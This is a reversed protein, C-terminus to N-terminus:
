STFVKEEESPEYARHQISYDKYVTGRTGQRKGKYVFRVEDGIVIPDTEDDFKSDVVKSGWVSILEGNHKKFTYLNSKNPGKDVEKSQYIGILEEGEEPSWAGQNGGKGATKWEAM